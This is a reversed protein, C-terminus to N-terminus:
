GHQAISRHLTPPVYEGVVSQVYAEFSMLRSMVSLVMVATEPCVMQMTNNPFIKSFTSRSFDFQGHMLQLNFLCSWMHTWTDPHQCYARYEEDSAVLPPPAILPNRANVYTTLSLSWRSETEWFASAAGMTRTAGARVWDTMIKQHIQFTAPQKTLTLVVNLYRQPSHISAGAALLMAPRLRQKMLELMTTMRAARDDEFSPPKTNTDRARPFAPMAASSAPPPSLPPPPHAPPPPRFAPPPPSPPAAPVAPPPPPPPPSPPAAPAAPAAAITGRALLAARLTHYIGEFHRTPLYVSPYEPATKVTLLADRAEVGTLHYREQFAKLLEKQTAFLKCKFAVYMEDLVHTSVM